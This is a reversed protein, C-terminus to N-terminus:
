FPGIMPVLPLIGPVHLMEPVRTVPFHSGLWMSRMAPFQGGAQEFQQLYSEYLPSPIKSKKETSKEVITLFSAFALIEFVNPFINCLYIFYPGWPTCYSINSIMNRAAIMNHGAIWKQFGLRHNLLLQARDDEVDQQFILAHWRRTVGTRAPLEWFM